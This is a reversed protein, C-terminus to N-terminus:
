PVAGVASRRILLRGIKPLVQRLSLLYMLHCCGMMLSGMVQRILQSAQEAQGDPVEFILEDHVQLLM